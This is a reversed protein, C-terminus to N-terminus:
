SEKTREGGATVQQQTASRGSRKGAQKPEESEEEPLPFGANLAARAEESTDQESAEELAEDRTKDIEENKSAFMETVKKVADATAQQVIRQVEARAEAGLRGRAAEAQLSVTEAATGPLPQWRDNWGVVKHMPRGAKDEVVLSLADGRVVADLVRFEGDGFEEDLKSQAVGLDEQIKATEDVNIQRRAAAEVNPDVSARYAATFAAADNLGGYQDAAEQRVSQTDTLHPYTTPM